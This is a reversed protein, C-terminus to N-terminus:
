EMVPEEEQERLYEDQQLTAILCEREEELEEVQGKKPYWDINVSSLYKEVQELEKEYKAREEASLRGSM